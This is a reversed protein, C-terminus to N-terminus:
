TNMAKLNAILPYVQEPTASIRASREIKFTDPRRSAFFALAAIALAIAAIVYLLIDIM